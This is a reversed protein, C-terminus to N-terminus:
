RATAFRIEIPLRDTTVVRVRKAETNASGRICSAEYYPWGRESCGPGYSRIDLRDSKGYGRATAASDITTMGPLLVIAGSLLAGGAVAALIKIMIVVRNHAASGTWRGM